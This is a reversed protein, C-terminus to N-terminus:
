QIEEPPRTLSNFSSAHPKVRSSEILNSTDLSEYDSEAQASALDFNDRYEKAHVRDKRSLFYRYFGRDILAFHYESPINPQEGILYNAGSNTAGFYNEVTIETQSPVDIIRYYNDDQTDGTLKIYKGIMSSSWSTGSGTITASGDTTSVTGAVYDDQTLPKAKSQYRLIGGDSVDGSPTPYLEFVDPLIWRYAIPRAATSSDTKLADWDNINDIKDLPSEIGNVVVKIEGGRIIDEPAQYKSQGQKLDFKKTVFTYQRRLKSRFISLGENFGKKLVTKARTSSDRVEDTAEDLMETLTM